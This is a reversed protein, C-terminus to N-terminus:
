VRCGLDHFQWPGGLHGQGVQSPLWLLRSVLGRLLIREFSQSDFQFGASYVVQGLCGLCAFTDAGLVGGWLLCVAFVLEVYM